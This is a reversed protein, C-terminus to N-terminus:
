EHSFIDREAWGALDFRARHPLFDFAAQALESRHAIIHWCRRAVERDLATALATALHTSPTM